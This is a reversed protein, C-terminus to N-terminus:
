SQANKLSKQHPVGSMILSFHTFFVTFVLSGHHSMDGEHSDQGMVEMSAM